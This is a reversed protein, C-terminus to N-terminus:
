LLHLRWLLGLVTMLFVLVALALYVIRRSPRSSVSYGSSAAAQAPRGIAVLYADRQKQPLLTPAVIAYYPRFQIYDSHRDGESSLAVTTRHFIGM